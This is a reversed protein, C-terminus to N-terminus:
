VYCLSKRDSDTYNCPQLEYIVTDMYASYRNTINRKDGDCIVNMANISTVMVLAIVLFIVSKMIEINLVLLLAFISFHYSYTEKICAVTALYYFTIM